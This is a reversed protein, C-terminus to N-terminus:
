QDGESEQLAEMMNCNNKKIKTIEKEFIDRNMRVRIGIFKAGEKIEIHGKQPGRRHSNVIM